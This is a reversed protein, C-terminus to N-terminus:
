MGSKGCNDCSNATNMFFGDSKRKMDLVKSRNGKTPPLSNTRDMKLRIRQFKELDVRCYKSKVEQCTNATKYSYQRSNINHVISKSITNVSPQLFGRSIGMSSRLLDFSLM